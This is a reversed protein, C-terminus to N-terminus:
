EPDGGARPRLAGEGHFCQDDGGRPDAVGDHRLRQKGAQMGLMAAQLEIGQCRAPNGGHQLAHIFDALDDVAGEAVALDAEFRAPAKGAFEGGAAVIRDIDQGIRELRCQYGEKGADRLPDAKGAFGAVAQDVAPVVEVLLGQRQHDFAERM